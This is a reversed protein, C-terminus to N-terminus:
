YGWAKLGAPSPTIGFGPNAGFQGGYAAGAIGGLNNLTGTLANAQGTYGSARAQGGQMLANGINGATQAGLQAGTNVATQGTGSLGALRNYVNGFEQAAYGEGQRLAEKMTAGSLRMGRAAAMRELAKQGEELRFEYGPTTQWDFPTGGEGGGQGGLNDIYSQAQERTDFMHEGVQYRTGSGPQAYRGQLEEVDRRSTAEVRGGGPTTYTGRGIGFPDPPQFQVRRVGSTAPSGAIENIELANTGGAGGGTGSGGFTPQPGLGTMYQMAALANYGAERYPALDQRSLDYQRRQEAAADKAADAQADAAKGAANGQILGGVISGGALAAVAGPM